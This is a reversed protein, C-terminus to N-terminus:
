EVLRVEAVMVLQVMDEEEEVVLIIDLLVVLYVMQVLLQLYEQEQVEQEVMPLLEM